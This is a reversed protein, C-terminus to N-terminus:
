YRVPMCIELSQKAFKTASKRVVNTLTNRSHRSFKRTDGVLRSSTAFNKFMNLFKIRIKECFYKALSDRSQRAVNMRTDRVQRRSIKAFKSHLIKAFKSHSIKTVSTRIDHSHRVVTARCDQSFRAVIQRSFLVLHCEYSYRALTAHSDYSNLHFYTVNAPFDHSVRVIARCDRSINGFNSRFERIQRM